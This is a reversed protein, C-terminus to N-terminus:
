VREIGERPEVLITRFRSMRVLGPAVGKPKALFKRHTYHVAVKSDDAAHSFKAALQAAEVVTRQPIEKRSPNRVVVHSGPYDACHLWLDHAQAVRFTLYDNDRAARGVLVEYGDSSRYRRIGPLKEPKRKSAPASKQEKTEVFSELATVERDAIIRELEELRGQLHELKADVEKMRSNIEEAAHKAKSYLAFYRAAEDQLSKNEDVAIHITPAGEAYYDILAVTGGSRRATSINALILEGLRRNEEADGHATLDRILNARLKSQQTIAQQLRRRASRARADFLEEQERTQYHDDLAASLSDFSNRLIVPGETVKGVPSPPPEYLSGIEQGIGKPPRLAHTITGEGTVLFLNASRGTLQTVLQQTHGGSVEDELHFVLRVIREPEDKIVSQLRSDSLCSRLAQVFQQHPISQKELEKVRRKIFYIRPKAPEVSLFLVRGDRLGFDIALSCPTLQFIKGPMRGPLTSELEAVIERINQQHM